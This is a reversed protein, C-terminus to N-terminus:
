KRKGWNKFIWIGESSDQQTKISSIAVKAMETLEQYKYGLLYSEFTFCLIEPIRYFISKMEKAASKMITNTKIKLSYNTQNETENFASDTYSNNM